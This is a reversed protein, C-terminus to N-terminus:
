LGLLEKKKADFEEQTLFGRELLGALKELDDVSSPAGAAQQVQQTGDSLSRVYDSFPQLTDKEQVDEIRFSAIGRGTIQIGGMLMGTSYTIAEISRYPMEMVEKSGLLGKDVFIVRKNTAVAVGQHRRLRDTDQRFTGGVIRAIAEDSDMIDYLMQREGSHRNEWLLPKVSDWQDDIEQRRKAGELWPGELSLSRVTAELGVKSRREDIRKWQKKDENVKKDNERVQRLRDESTKKTNEFAQGIRGHPTNDEGQSAVLIHSQVTTAFHRRTEPKMPLKRAGSTTEMNCGLSVFGTEAQFSCIDSYPYSTVKGISKQMFTTKLHIVRRDTAVYVDTQGNWAVSAPVDGEELVSPLHAFAPHALLKADVGELGQFITRVDTIPQGCRTCFSGSGQHQGQSCEDNM